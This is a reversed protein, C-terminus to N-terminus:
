QDKSGLDLHDLLLDYLDKNDDHWTAIITLSAETAQQPTLSQLEPMQLCAEVTPVTSEFFAESISRRILRKFATLFSPWADMNKLNWPKVKQAQPLQPQPRSITPAGYRAVMPSGLDINPHVYTGESARTKPSM